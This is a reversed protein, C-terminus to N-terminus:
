LLPATFAADMCCITRLRFAAPMSFALRYRLWCRRQDAATLRLPFAPMRGGAGLSGFFWADELFPLAAASRPLSSDAAPSAM